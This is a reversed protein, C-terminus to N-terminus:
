LQTFSHGCCVGLVTCGKRVSLCCGLEVGLRSGVVNNVLSKQQVATGGFGYMM